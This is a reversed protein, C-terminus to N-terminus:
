NLVLIQNWSVKILVQCVTWTLGHTKAASTQSLKLTISALQGSFEEPKSPTRHPHHQSTMKRLPLLNQLKKKPTLNLNIKQRSLLMRIMRRRKVKRTKWRPQKVSLSLPRRKPSKRVQFCKALEVSFRRSSKIRLLKRTKTLLKLIKLSRQILRKRRLRWPNKLKKIMLRRRRPLRKRLKRLKKKRKKQLSKLPKSPKKSKKQPTKPTLSRTM